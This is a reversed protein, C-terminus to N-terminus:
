FGLFAITRTVAAGARARSGHTLSRLPLVSSPLLRLHSSPLKVDKQPAAAEGCLLVSNVPLQCMGRDEIADERGGRDELTLPTEEVLM